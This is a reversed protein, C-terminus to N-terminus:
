TSSLRKCTLGSELQTEKCNNIFTSRLPSCMFLPTFGQFGAGLNLKRTIKNLQHKTENFYLKHNSEKELIYNDDVVVYSM